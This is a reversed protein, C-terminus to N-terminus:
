KNENLYKHQIEMIEKEKKNKYKLEKEMSKIEFSFSDGIKAGFPLLIAPISFIIDNETVLNAKGQHIESIKFINKSEWINREIKIEKENNKKKNLLKDEIYQRSLINGDNKKSNNNNKDKIDENQFKYLSNIDGFSILNIDILKNDLFKDLNKTNKNEQNPLNKNKTNSNNKKIEKPLLGNFIKNNIDEEEITNNSNLEGKPKNFIETKHRKLVNKNVVENEENKINLDM